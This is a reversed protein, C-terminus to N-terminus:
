GLSEFFGKLPMDPTSTEQTCDSGCHLCQLNCRLTCEWFLYNLEHLRTQNKRHQRFLELTIKKKLNM